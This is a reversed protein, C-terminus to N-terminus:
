ESRPLTAVTKFLGNEKEPKCRVAGQVKQIKREDSDFLDKKYQM